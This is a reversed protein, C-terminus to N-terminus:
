WKTKMFFNEKEEFKHRTTLHLATVFLETKLYYVCNSSVMLAYINGASANASCSTQKPHERQIKRKRECYGTISQFNLVQLVKHCHATAAVNSCKGPISPHYKQSMNGFDFKIRIIGIMTKFLFLSFSSIQIVSLSTMM